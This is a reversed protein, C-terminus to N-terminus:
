SELVEDPVDCIVESRALVRMTGALEPDKLCNIIKGVGPATSLHVTPEKRPPGFDLRKRSKKEDFKLGTETYFVLYQGDMRERLLVDMEDALKVLRSAAEAAEELQSDELAGPYYSALIEEVIDAKTVAQSGREVLWQRVFRVTLYRWTYFAKLTPVDNRNYIEGQIANIVPGVERGGDWLSAELAFVTRCLTDWVNAELLAPAMIPQRAMLHAKHTLHRFPTFSSSKVYREPLESPLHNSVFLRVATRLGFWREMIIEETAATDEGFEFDDPLDAYAPSDTRRRKTGRDPTSGTGGGRLSPDPILSSM